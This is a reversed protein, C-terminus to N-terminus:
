DGLNLLNGIALKDSIGGIKKKEKKTQNTKRRLRLGGCSCKGFSSKSFIFSHRGFPLWFFQFIIKSFFAVALFVRESLLGCKQAAVTRKAWLFNPRVLNRGKLQLTNKGLLGYNEV